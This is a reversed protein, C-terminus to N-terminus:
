AQYDVGTNSQGSIIEIVLKHPLCVITEGTKSIAGRQVDVQDKCNAKIVQISHNKVQIENYDGDSSKYTWTQNKNLDFDKIVQGNVRLQALSGTQNNALLFFVSFSSLFLLLIIIIDLPKIKIAKLFKMVKIIACILSFTM